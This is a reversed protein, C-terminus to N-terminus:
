VGSSAGDVTTKPTASARHRVLWTTFTAADTPRALYYGQVNPCGIEALHRLQDSTEVGEATVPIDLARGLQVLLQVIAADTPNTLMGAIFTLDIKVGDIPVASIHHLSSAGTGVDDLTVAVGLARLQGLQNTAATMDGLTASEPLELRLRNPTLGHKQVTRRVYDTLNLDNLQRAALNVNIRPPAADGITSDWVALQRCAEDLVWEGLIGIFGTREAEPLFSAPNLVGRTPHAWRVLAEVSFLTGDRTDVIPQYHLQFEGEALAQHFPDQADATTAPSLTDTINDV